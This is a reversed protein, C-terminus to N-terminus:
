INFRRAYSAILAAVNLPLKVGGPGADSEAVSDSYTVSAVNALAEQKIGSVRARGKYIDRVYEKTAEVIPPPTTAYGTTYVVTIQTGSIYAGDVRRLFGSAKGLFYDSNSQVVGDITVSTLAIVPAHMLVLNTIDSDLPYITETVTRQAILAACWTEINQCAADLMSGLLVDDSSGTVGIFSKADTLSVFLNSNAASVLDKDLVIDRTGFM